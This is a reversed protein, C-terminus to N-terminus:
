KGGFLFNGWDFSQPNQYPQTPDTQGYGMPNMQPTQYGQGWTGNIDNQVQQPNIQFPPPKPPQQQFSQGPRQGIGQAPGGGDPGSAGTPGGGYDGAMAGSMGQAGVGGINGVGGPEGQGMGVGEFGGADSFGQGIDGFGGFGGGGGGGGDGM